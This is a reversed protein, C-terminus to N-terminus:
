PTEQCIENLTTVVRSIEPRLNLLAAEAESFDALRGANEIQWALGAAVPAALNSLSGKLSHASRTLQDSNKNELAASIALLQKPFDGAFAEILEALFERDNDLRVMLEDSNVPKTVTPQPAIPEERRGDPLRQSYEGLIEDLEAASVPKSLYGDMGAAMCRERDGKMALATMAIVLQHRGTGTEEARLEITAEIGDMEPMQVDMFVLDCHQSRLTDLAERGNNAVLVEHGRKELMRRALKQNVDNDEALLIKMSAYQGREAKVAVPAAAQSDAASGLAKCIAERLEAQRVPKLLYAAIGLQECRATDGRHGGSTLMMITAVVSREERIREVLGFGDLEPMHMDTLILQYSRGNGNAEHLAVLAEKASSALTPNMGWNKLLNELIRRNTRNDDVVLVRIGALIRHSVPSEQVLGPSQATGLAVTFHFISGEGIKSEAWIRGGMMEALQRSITLGLGTGGYQRTTSTDVQSFSEFIRELKDAPIGVGTDSVMFHLERTEGETGTQEVKLGAEGSATFKIANGILNVVIQRLRNPDGTLFPPIQPDVECLLELGKADAREALSRLTNELCERLDFTIDELEVKGAEIKSFDLIDNIVHLLTEASFQITELYERQEGTLETELALGTMGIVGNLPTRIEHSMNALFEGKARSAAEAAKQAAERDREIQKDETVDHLFAAFLTVEEARMSSLVMQTPFEHGDRHCGTVELRAQMAENGRKELLSRLSEGTGEAKQDLRIFNALPRNIAECALWGFTKEARPNWHHVLLSDDFAIFADFSNQIIYRYREESKLRLAQLALRRDVTSIVFVLGLVVLTVLTVASTGLASVNVAHSLDMDGLPAPYFTVAAMGAYHMVPIATGMLLASATKRWGWDDVDARHSFTLFLAVASIVVALVVSLMVRPMSYRCMAPARMAAMGIYHMSAIGCGITLSGTVTGSVTLRPRSVIFLTLGCALIAALLSILVTPWDYYVPVPLRLAEMGIYHMSWIGTGMATTGGSFWFFRTKGSASTVRGALDLAAYASLVAILVSLAVLWYDYYGVLPVGSANM